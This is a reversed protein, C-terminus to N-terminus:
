YTLLSSERLQNTVVNIVLSFITIDSFFNIKKTIILTSIIIVFKQFQTWENISRITMGSLM